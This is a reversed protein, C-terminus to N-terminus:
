SCRRWRSRFLLIAKPCRWGGVSNLNDLSRPPARRPGASVLKATSPRYIDVHVCLQTPTPWSCVSKPRSPDIRPCLWVALLRRSDSHDAPSAAQPTTVHSPSQQLRRMSPISLPASAFSRGRRQAPSQHLVGRALGPRSLPATSHSSWARISRRDHRSLPPGRPRVGCM